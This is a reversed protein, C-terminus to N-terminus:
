EKGEGGFILFGIRAPSRRAEVASVAQECLCTLGPPPSQSPPEVTACQVSECLRVNVALIATEGLWEGLKPNFFIFFLRRQTWAVLPAFMALAKRMSYWILNILFSSYWFSCM